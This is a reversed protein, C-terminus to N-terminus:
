APGGTKFSRDRQRGESPKGPIADYCAPRDRLRRRNGPPAITDDIHSDAAQGAHGRAGWASDANRDAGKHPAPSKRSLRRPGHVKVTYRAPSTVGVAVSATDMQNRTLAGTHEKPTPPRPIPHAELDKLYRDQIAAEKESSLDKWATSVMPNNTVTTDEPLRPPSDQPWKAMAIEVPSRKPGDEPTNDQAM